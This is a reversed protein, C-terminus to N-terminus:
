AAQAVATLLLVIAALITMAEAARAIRGVQTAQDIGEPVRVARIALADFFVGLGVMVLVVLHKALFVIAWTSGFSGVGGYRSDVGMLYVGTALFVVLSAIVLPLARRELAAVTEVLEAAEASTLEDAVFTILGGTRDAFPGGSYDLLNLGRWHAAHQPAVSQVRRRDDTMFYFYAFRVSMSPDGM